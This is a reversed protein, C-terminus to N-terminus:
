EGHRRGEREREREREREGGGDVGGTETEVLGRGWVRQRQCPYTGSSLSPEARQGRQSYPLTM